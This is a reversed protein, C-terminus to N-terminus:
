EHTLIMWPGCAVCGQDASTRNTIKLYVLQSAIASCDSWYKTRPVAQQHLTCDLYTIPREKHHALLHSITCVIPVGFM